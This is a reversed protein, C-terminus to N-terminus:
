GKPPESGRLREEVFARARGFTEADPCYVRMLVGRRGRLLLVRVKELAQVGRVDGWAVRKVVSRLPNTVDEVPYGRWRLCAAPGSPVPRVRLNECYAEGEELRYLAAYRNKQILLAAFIFVSVFVLTVYGSVWAAGTLHTRDLYGGFWLQLVLLLVTMLGWAICLVSVVDLLILPNTAIPVGVYWRLRKPRAGGPAGKRREAAGDGCVPSREM